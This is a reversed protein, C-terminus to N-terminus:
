DRAEVIIDPKDEERRLLQVDTRELCICYGHEALDELAEDLTGSKDSFFAHMDKETYFAVEYERVETTRVVLM